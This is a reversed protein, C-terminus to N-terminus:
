DALPLVPDENKQKIEIPASVNDEARVLGNTEGAMQMDQEVLSSGLNESKMDVNADSSNIQNGALSSGGMDKDSDPSYADKTLM